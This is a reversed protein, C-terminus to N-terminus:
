AISSLKRMARWSPHTLKALARHELQRIRERSLDLEEAVEVVSRPEGGDMGYRLEVITREREDLVELLAELEQPLLRAGVNDVEAEADPDALFDGLEAGGDEGVSASLSVPDAGVRMLDLVRDEPLDLAEALEPVGPPRGLSQEIQNQAERMRLLDDNTRSPLRVTTRTAAIGRAIFQRIWWVGYTSFRFGKHHDFKEVARILGLNGEQILDLLPLGSAQYRKAVSVVLRLNANIFAQRAREGSRVKMRLRTRESRSLSDAAELAAEAERGEEIASALEREGAPTLLDYRGIEDLYAAVPDSASNPRGRDSRRNAQRDHRRTLAEGGANTSQTTRM